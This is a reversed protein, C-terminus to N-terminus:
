LSAYELALAEPLATLPPNLPPNPSGPWSTLGLIQQAADNAVLM